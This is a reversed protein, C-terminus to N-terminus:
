PCLTFSPVERWLSVIVQPFLREIRVELRRLASGSRGEICLVRPGNGYGGIPHIDCTGGEFAATEDGGYVADLRLNEISREACAQAYELAQMSQQLSYATKEASGGLLLLSLVAATAITGIALVSLLFVYGPRSRFTRM